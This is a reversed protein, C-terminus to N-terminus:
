FPKKPEINENLLETSKKQNNIFDEIKIRGQRYKNEPSKFVVKKYSKKTENKVFKIM